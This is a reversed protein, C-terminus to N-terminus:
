PEDRLASWWSDLGSLAGSIEALVESLRKNWSSHGSVRKMAHDLRNRAKSVWADRSAFRASLCRELWGDLRDVTELIRRHEEPDDCEPLRSELADILLVVVMM